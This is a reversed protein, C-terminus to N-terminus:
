ARPEPEVPSTESCPCTARWRDKSVHEAGRLCHEEVHAKWPHRCRGCLAAPNALWCECWDASMSMGGFLGGLADLPQFSPCGEDHMKHARQRAEVAELRALLDVSM